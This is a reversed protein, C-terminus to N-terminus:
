ACLFKEKYKEEYRPLWKIKGSEVLNQIEKNTLMNFNEETYINYIFNNLKCWREGAEIKLKVLPSSILKKPKIEVLENNNLLFDAFYHRINGNYHNYLIAYKKNEASIWKLNNKEIYNIMFSLEFLSRFYWKRYWGSWGNGGGQSAPKGFQWNAAGFRGM